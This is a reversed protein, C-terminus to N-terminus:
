RMWGGAVDLTSGTVYSANQSLLFAVTDAIEEPRALRGLANMSRTVDHPAVKALAPHVYDAGNEAAMDTATGGPAVANIAIGVEALEPALNLAMATVAAKSAAYLTHHHVAIRASVSSTLVIRSGPPMVAAAAQVAFLQGGVNTRFVDEFDALTIEALPAFHEIGANSALLNLTGFEAVVKTVVDAIQNPDTVDGGFSEARHGESRLDEVLEEAAGANSRYNIAVTAGAEALRRAIAAGIGRSGGTVLAVRGDFTTSM